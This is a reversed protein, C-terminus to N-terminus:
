ALYASSALRPRPQIKLPVARQLTLGYAEDMNLKEPVQGAPLEWGFGHVLTAAMLQVMRIGMSMGACIRRGAGFPIVEFDNGRVDINEYKSGPMFRDPQFELPDTWISPDRSIAWVNVLLRTGKPIHYGAVQCSESAIRPLSLPTSPHLRFTEKVVAQLYPLNQIDSEKVLRDRGVVSDLEAQVKKQIHPHRILEALAWEVTSASTDTGATFLDLLLAKIDTDTLKGDQGDLGVPDDKLRLLVSLVDGQGGAGSSRGHEELIRQMFGDLRRHLAKMKKAVGMLDMWDLSPVFDGINFVGALQMLELVMGRFEGADEGGEFVRRGILVKGLANATCVTLAEGVGVNEGARALSAALIGLEKERVHRFDDLAKNSFLHVACIKRLSRWKPGYEAWVMDQSDYAVHKAGANPPRSSFNADNHKLFERAASASCAAVVTTTGLRLSIIPGYQKALAALSHHPMLGLAPLSGILPWGTPGPPLKSDRWRFYWIAAALAALLAVLHVPSAILDGIM